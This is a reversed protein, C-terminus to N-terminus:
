NFIWKKEGWRERERERKKREKKQKEEIIMRKERERKTTGEYRNAKFEASHNELTDRTIQGNEDAPWFSPHM